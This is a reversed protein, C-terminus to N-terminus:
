GSQLSPLEPTDAHYKTPNVSETGYKGELSCVREKEISKKKQRREKVTM